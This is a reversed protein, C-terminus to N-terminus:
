HLPSRVHPSIRCCSNAPAPCPGSARGVAKRQLISQLIPLVYAGTKGSGTQSRALIDKGALALPIVKAQVPTPAAFNQEAIAQLLRNDLGLDHFPLSDSKVAEENAVRSPVPIDEANLKRKM